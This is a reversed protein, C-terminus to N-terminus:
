TWYWHGEQRDWTFFPKCDKRALFQWVLDAQRAVVGGRQFDLQRWEFTTFFNRWTRSKQCRHTQLDGTRSLVLTWCWELCQLRSMLRSGRRGKRRSNWGLFTLCCRLMDKPINLLIQEALCLFTMSFTGACVKLGITLLHFIATSRLFGAVSATAGFPLANSGFVQCEKQNPVPVAIRMFKRDDQHIPFQKYAASLDFTNGQLGRKAVRRSASREVLKKRRPLWTVGMQCGPADTSSPGLKRQKRWDRPGRRLFMNVHQLASSTKKEAQEVISQFIEYGVAVAKEKVLHAVRECLLWPYAAKEATPFKLGIRSGSCVIKLTKLPCLKQLEQHQVAFNMTLTMKALDLGRLLYGWRHNCWRNRAM